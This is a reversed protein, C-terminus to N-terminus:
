FAFLQELRFFNTCNPSTQVCCQLLQLHVCHLQVLSFWSCFSQWCCWSCCNCWMCSCLMQVLQLFQMLSCWSCSVVGDVSLQLSQVLSSCNFFVVGFVSIVAVVAVVGFQVRLGCSSLSFFLFFLLKIESRTNALSHHLTHHWFYFTILYAAYFINACGFCKNM